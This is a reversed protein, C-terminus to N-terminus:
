LVELDEPKIVRLCVVAELHGRTSANLTRKEGSCARSPILPIIALSLWRRDAINRKFTICRDRCNHAGSTFVHLPTPLIRRCTLWVLTHSAYRKIYILRVLVNHRHPSEFAPSSVNVESVSVFLFPFPTFNSSVPLLMIKINALHHKSVWIYELELKFILDVDCPLHCYYVTYVTRIKCIVSFLM